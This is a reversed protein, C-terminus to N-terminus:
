SAKPGSKAGKKSGQQMQEAGKKYGKEKPETRAVEIGRKFVLM